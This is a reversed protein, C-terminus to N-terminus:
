QHGQKIKQEEIRSKRGKEGVIKRYKRQHERKKKEQIWSKKESIERINGNNRQVCYM